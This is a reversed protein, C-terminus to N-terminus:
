SADPPALDTPRDLREGPFLLMYRRELENATEAAKRWERAMDVVAARPMNLRDVPRPLGPKKSPLESERQDWYASGEKARWYANAVAARYSDRRLRLRAHRFDEGDAGNEGSPFQGLLFQYACLESMLITITNEVENPEFEVLDRVAKRASEFALFQMYLVGTLAEHWADHRDAVAGPVETSALARLGDRMAKIYTYFATVNTVVKVDLAQLDRASQDFVPTYSESAEFHGFAKRVRAILEPDAPEAMGLDTNFARVYRRTLDVVICVRCLTSIECAFLDVIGLRQSATQYAWGIIGGGLAAAAGILPLSGAMADGFLRAWVWGGSHSKIEAWNDSVTHWYEFCIAGVSLAAFAILTAAIILQLDAVHRSTAIRNITAASGGERLRRLTLSVTRALLM